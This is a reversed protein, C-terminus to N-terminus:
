QGEPAPSSYYRLAIQSGTPVSVVRFGGWATFPTTIPVGATMESADIEFLPCGYADTVRLTGSTGPNGPWISVLQAFAGSTKKPGSLVSGGTVALPYAIEISPLGVGGVDWQALTMYGPPLPPAQAFVALAIGYNDFKNTVGFTGAIAQNSTLAMSELMTMGTPPATQWSVPQVGFGNGAASFDNDGQANAGFALALAPTGTLTGTGPGSITYPSTSGTLTVTGATSGGNENALLSSAVGAIEVAVIGGAANSNVTLANGSASEIVAQVINYNGAEEASGLQTVTDGATISQGQASGIQHAAIWVVNGQAPTINVSASGSSAYNGVVQVIDYSM